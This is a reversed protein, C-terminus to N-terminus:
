AIKWYSPNGSRGLNRSINALVLNNKQLDSLKCCHGNVPDTSEFAISTRYNRGIQYPFGAKKSGGGQNINVTSGYFRSRKASNSLGITM